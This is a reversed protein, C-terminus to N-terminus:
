NNTLKTLISLTKYEGIVQGNKYQIVISESEIRDKEDLKLHDILLAKWETNDDVLKTIRETIGEKDNLLKVDSYTNTWSGGHWKAKLSIQNSKKSLHPRIELKSETISGVFVSPCDSSTVITQMEWIGIFNSEISVHKKNPITIALAKYFNTSNFFFLIILFFWFSRKLTFGM